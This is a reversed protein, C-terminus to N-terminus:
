LNRVFNSLANCDALHLAPPHQAFEGPAPPAARILVPLCGANCACELDIDTDGAFWVSRDLAIGSDAMALEVPDVSPKDNAADFAGVISGFYPEWGLRAAEARLYDGKKNSVVALYIGSGQLAQLMEEAGPLPRLAELHHETFRAYFVEGAERWREGFMAPFTDRMSGRVRARVEELTWPKLGFYSLTYNQADQIAAWSDILTNDWDFLLARPPALPLDFGVTV